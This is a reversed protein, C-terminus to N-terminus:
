TQRSFILFFSLGTCGVAVCELNVEKDDAALVAYVAVHADNIPLKSCADSQLWPLLLPRCQTFADPSSATRRLM